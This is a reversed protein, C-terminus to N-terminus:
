ETVKKSPMQQVSFTGSSIHNNVLMPKGYGGVGGQALNGMGKNNIFFYQFLKWLEEVTLHGGKAKPSFAQM